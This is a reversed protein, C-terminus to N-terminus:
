PGFYLVADLAMYTNGVSSFLVHLNRNQVSQQELCIRSLCVSLRDTQKVLNRLYGCDATTLNIHDCALLHALGLSLCSTAM